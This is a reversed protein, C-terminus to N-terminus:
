TLFSRTRCLWAALIGHDRSRDVVFNDINDMADVSVDAADLHARPTAL